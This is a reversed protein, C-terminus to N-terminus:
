DPTQVVTGQAAVIQWKGRRRLYVHLYRSAGAPSGGPALTTLRGRVIATTPAIQHVELEDIVFRSDPNDIMFVRFLGARDVARGNAPVSWLDPAYLTALWTTDHQAIAASRHRELSLLQREAPSMTSTEPLIVTTQGEIVSRQQADIRTAFLLASMAICIQRM